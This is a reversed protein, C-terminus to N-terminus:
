LGAVPQVFIEIVTTNLHSRPKVVETNANNKNVCFYLLTLSLYITAVPPLM